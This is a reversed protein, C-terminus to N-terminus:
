ARFVHPHSPSSTHAPPSVSLSLRSVCSTPAAFLLASLMRCLARETGTSATHQNSQIWPNSGMIRGQRRMRAHCAHRTSYPKTDTVTRAASRVTLSPRACLQTKARNYYSHSSTLSTLHSRILTSGFPLIQTPRHLACGGHKTKTRISPKPKKHLVRQRNAHRGRQSAHTVVKM